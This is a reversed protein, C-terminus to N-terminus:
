NYDLSKIFKLVGLDFEKFSQTKSVPGVKSMGPWFSSLYPSKKMYYHPCFVPEPQLTTMKCSACVTATDLCKVCKQSYSVVASHSSHIFLPRSNRKSFSSLCIVVSSPVTDDFSNFIRRKSACDM